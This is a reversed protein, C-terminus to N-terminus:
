IYERIMTGDSELRYNVIKGGNISSIHQVLPRDEGGHRLKAVLEEPMIELILEKLQFLYITGVPVCKLNRCSRMIMKELSPMSGDQVEIENLNDLQLFELVKLKRFKGKQFCLKQGIYADMLQLELLEPLSELPGLPSGSLKSWKLRLKVLSELSSIWNPLKQLRGKLYLRQLLLPHDTTAPFYQLDLIEEMCTSKVDLSRLKRMQRISHCLVKGDERKLDIIGLKRLQTLSGLETIIQKNKSAKVFSLKQLASLDKIGPLVELGEVCDFDLLNQMKYSYVLLHRLRQLMFIEVPLRSVKTHKLDLTELYLLNGVAKPVESVTTNRLSLYRLRYLVKIEEPFKEIPAKELDLVRLSQFRSLVTHGSSDLLVGAVPFKLLSRTYNFSTNKTVSWRNRHISLRRIKKLDHGDTNNQQHLVLSFNEEKCKQLLILRMIPHVCCERPRGDLDTKVAQVLNRYILEMLCDDAVEESSRDDKPQVFGEAIWLRILRTRRIPLDQPFVSFYLFCYKLQVPLHSYSLELTMAMNRLVISSQLCSTLGNLQEQWEGIPKDKVIGSLFEGMAVVALPLGQCIKECKNALNIFSDRLDLPCCKRHTSWFVKKELLQLAKEKNLPQLHFYLTPSQLCSVIKKYRTTILIRSRLNNDPLAFRIRKIDEWTDLSWADNFVIVYRRQQLIKELGQVLADEEMDDIEEYAKGMYEESIQKLMEQLIQKSNYSQQVNIWAHSQFHHNKVSKSDYIRKVLTTKGSGAPGTVLIVTRRPDDAGTLLENLEQMPREIGVIEDDQAMILKSSMQCRSSFSSEPQPGSSSPHGHLSLKQMQMNANLKDIDQMKTNIKKMRHAIERLPIHHILNHLFRSRSSSGLSQPHVHLMLDELVDEM